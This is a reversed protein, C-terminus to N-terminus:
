IAQPARKLTPVIRGISDSNGNCCKYLHRNQREHRQGTDALAVSLSCLLGLDGKGTWSISPSAGCKGRPLCGSGGSWPFPTNTLTLQNTALLGSPWSGSGPQSCPSTSHM